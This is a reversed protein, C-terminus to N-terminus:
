AAVTLTVEIAQNSAQLRPINYKVFVVIGFLGSSNGAHQYDNYINTEQINKSNTDLGLSRVEINTIEIAAIYKNATITIRRIIESEISELSSADYLLSKLNAGLGANGLREGFNTLILNRFNDKIQAAADFHMRYMGEGNRGKGFELPTKIGIPPNIVVINETLERATVLKGSSKFSFKKRAM